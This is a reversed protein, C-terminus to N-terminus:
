SNRIEKWKLELDPEDLAMLRIRDFQNLSKGIEFAKGLWFWASDMQKLRCTYCALNFAIIPESPFRPAIGTLTDFAQKLGGATRRISYGFWIWAEAMGPVIETLTRAIEL